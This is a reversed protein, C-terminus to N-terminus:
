PVTPIVSSSSAMVVHRPLHRRLAEFLHMTGTVNTSVFGLPDDISARM